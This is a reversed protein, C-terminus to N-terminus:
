IAHAPAFFWNAHEETPHLCIHFNDNGSPIVSDYPAFYTDTKILLKLM